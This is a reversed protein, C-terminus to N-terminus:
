SGTEVLAPGPIGYSAEAQFQGETTAATRTETNQHGKASGAHPVLYM